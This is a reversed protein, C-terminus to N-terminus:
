NQQQPNQQQKKRMETIMEREKPTVFIKIEEGNLKKM